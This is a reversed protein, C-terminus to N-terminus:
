RTNAEQSPGHEPAGSRSEAKKGDQTIKDEDAAGNKEPFITLVDGGPCMIFEAGQTAVENAMGYSAATRAEAFLREELENWGAEKAAKAANGAAPDIAAGNKEADARQKEEEVEEHLRGPRSEMGGAVQPTGSEWSPARVLVRTMRLTGIGRPVRLVEVEAEGWMTGVIGFWDRDGKQVIRNEKAMRM